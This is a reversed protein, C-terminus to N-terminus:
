SRRCTSSWGPRSARPSSRRAPPRARSARARHGRGDLDVTPPLEIGVPESGYFEVKILADPILYNVSDGLAEADIHLQEYSQRTWSTSRTATRTSISCRASTWCRASSRTKRDCSRIRCRQRQPHQPVQGPRVRAPQRPDRAAARARPVSGRRDQDADGEETTDSSQPWLTTTWFRRITACTRADQGRHPERSRDAWATPDAARGGRQPLFPEFPQRRRLGVRPRRRDVDVFGLVAVDDRRLQRPERAVVDLQRDLVVRSVIRPWRASRAALPPSTRCKWWTSRPCPAKM